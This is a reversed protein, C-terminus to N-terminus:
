KDRRYDKDVSNWSVWTTYGCKNCIYGRGGQSDNDFHQLPYGCRICKCNNFSKKELLIGIYAFSCFFIFGIAVVLVAKLIEM